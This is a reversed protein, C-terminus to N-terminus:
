LVIWLVVVIKLNGENFLTVRQNTFELEGDDMLPIQKSNSSNNQNNDDMSVVRWSWRSFLM